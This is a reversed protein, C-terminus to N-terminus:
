YVIYVVNAACKGGAIGGFYESRDGVTKDKVHIFYESIITKAYLTATAVFDNNLSCLCSFKYIRDELTNEGLNLLAQFRSNWNEGNDYVNQRFQNQFLMNSIGLFQLSEIHHSYMGSQNGRDCSACSKVVSQSGNGTADLGVPHSSQRFRLCESAQKLAPLHIKAQRRRWARQVTVM